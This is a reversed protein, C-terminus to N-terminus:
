KLPYVVKDFWSAEPPSVEAEVELPVNIYKWHKPLEVTILEKIKHLVDETEGIAAEMVISDHIEAIIRTKMKNRLLWQHLQNVAWLLGHFASGQIPWNCVQKRDLLGSSVFGTKYRFWGRQLFSDYWDWKWRNYVKFRENWFRTEVQKIHYQFTNTEPEQGAEANGLEVIGKKKLHEKMGVGHKTKLKYIDIAEWLTKSVTLWYSGYFEPFVFRNKAIYRTMHGSGPTKDKWYSDNSKYPLLFCEKAMDRHMDTSSDTIYQELRPDRCYVCAWRVENGSIDVEAIQYGPPAIICRRVLEGQLPDRIPFNMISPRNASSRYSDATHLNWFPHIRGEGDLERQLQLLYTNRAKKMKELKFYKKVFPENVFEFASEDAKAKGKKTVRGTRRHGLVDFVVKELQEKSGLKTRDGFLKKWKRFIPDKMLEHEMDKITKATKDLQQTLYQTDVLIGTGTMYSLTKVGEMFLEVAEPSAPKM